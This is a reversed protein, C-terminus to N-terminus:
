VRHDQRRCALTSCTIATHAAVVATITMFSGNNRSGTTVATTPM